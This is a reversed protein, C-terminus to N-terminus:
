AAAPRRSECLRRCTLASGLLGGRAAVSSPRLIRPVRRLAFALRAHRAAAPAAPASGWAVHGGCFRPRAAAFELGPVASLGAAGHRAVSRLALPWLNVLRAPILRALM